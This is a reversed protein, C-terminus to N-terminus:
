YFLLQLLSSQYLLIFLVTMKRIFYIERKLRKVPSGQDCWESLHVSNHILIPFYRWWLFIHPPPFTATFKKGEVISLVEFFPNQSTDNSQWSFLLYSYMSCVVSKVWLFPRFTLLLVVSSFYEQCYQVTHTSNLCFCHLLVVSTKWKVWGLFKLIFQM